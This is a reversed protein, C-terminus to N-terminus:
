SSNSLLDITDETMRLDAFFQMMNILTANHEDDSRTGTADGIFITKYNLLMADRATSECCVNTLTGTIILTDIALEDLVEKLNSSGPTLASSRAKTILLDENKRDMGSWIERAFSGEATDNVIKVRSEETTFHEYWSSWDPTYVHETWIVKGGVERIKKALTNINPAIAGVGPVEVMSLGPLIFCNQMDIALLATKKPDIKEFIYRRGRRAICNDIYNQPIKIKHM